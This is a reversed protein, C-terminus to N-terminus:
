SPVSCFTLEFTMINLNNIIVGLKNIHFNDLINDNPISSKKIRTM